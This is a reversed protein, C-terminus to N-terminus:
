KLAKFIKFGQKEEINEFKRFHAKLAEEYPLHVNAVMYLLGGRRLASAANRIFAQGLESITKKGTHFPPNMVIFDYQTAKPLAVTLDHWIANSAGAFGELNTKCAMLARYDADIYDLSTIDHTSQLLNKSLFGYGCGFDAGKGQIKMSELSELFLQSGKDARDWSFLGPQSQFAGDLIPQIGGQQAWESFLTQNLTKTKTMWVVRCKHKSADQTGFGLAELDKGLRKGGADNAASCFLIGGDKLAGLAKTMMYRTEQVNKTGLLLVADFAKNETSESSVDHGASQLTRAFTAFHQELVVSDFHALGDHNQANLFLVDGAPRALLNQEFPYFLTQLAADDM